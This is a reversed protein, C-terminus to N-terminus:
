NKTERRNRTMSRQKVTVTDKAANRHENGSVTDNGSVSRENRSVTDNGSVSLENGSIVDNESVSMMKDSMTTMLWSMGTANERENLENEATYLSNESMNAMNISADAANGSLSTMELGTQGGSMGSEQIDLMKSVPIIAAEEEVTQIEKLFQVLKERDESLEQIEQRMELVRDNAEQNRTLIEEQMRQEQRAQRSIMFNDYARLGIAAVLVAALSLLIVALIENLKRM